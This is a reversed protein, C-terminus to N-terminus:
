LKFTPMSGKAPEQERKNFVLLKGMNNKLELPNTITPAYRNGQVSIAFKVTNITKEAGFKKIMDETAKRQTKNGFNITPNIEYFLNFIEQIEKSHEVVPKVEEAFSHKATDINDKYYEKINNDQPKQTGGKSNEAYGRAIKAYGGIKIVLQIKRKYNREVDSILLREEALEGIVRSIQSESLNLLDGIYKNSAWCYGKENTLSSILGYVIKATSSLTKSLMVETPIVSFTSFEKKM